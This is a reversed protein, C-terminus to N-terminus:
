ETTWDARMVPNQVSEVDDTHFKQRQTASMGGRSVDGATLLSFLSSNGCAIVLAESIKCPQPAVINLYIQLIWLLMCFVASNALFRILYIDTCCIQFKDWGNPSNVQRLSAFKDHFKMLSILLWHVSVVLCLNHQLFSPVLWSTLPKAM